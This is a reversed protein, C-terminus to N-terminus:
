NRSPFLGQLAISYNMVLFPQMNEHPANSGVSALTGAALPVTAGGPAAYTLVPTGNPITGGSLFGGAPSPQNGVATSAAWLHNHQPIQTINLAVTETGTQQGWVYNSLGPGQGMSLAGRGRLDPLMLTTVGNGGYTTGILAFLAQNQQIPLTQGQCLAWGRPPFTFGFARIEGIYPQTM